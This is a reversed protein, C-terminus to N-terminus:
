ERAWAALQRWYGETMGDATFLAIGRNAPCRPWVARVGELAAAFNEAKRDFMGSRGPVDTIAGINLRVSAALEGLRRTQISTAAVYEDRVRIDTDYNMAMVDDVLVVLRRYYAEDWALLGKGAGAAPLSDDEILYGALGILRGEPKEERLRALVALLNADGSKVPEFDLQVGDFGLSWLDRARALTAAPGAIKGIMGFLRASPMRKRFGDLAARVRAREAADSVDLRYVYLHDIRADSLRRVLEDSVGSGFAAATFYIGNSCATAPAQALVISLM